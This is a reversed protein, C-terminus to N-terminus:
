GYEVGFNWFGFGLYIGLGLKWYGLSNQKSNQIETM